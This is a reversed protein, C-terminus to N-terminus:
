QNQSALKKKSPKKKGPDEVKAWRGSPLKVYTGDKRKRTTGPPLAKGVSRFAVLKRLNTEIAKLVKTRNVSKFGANGVASKSIKIASEATLGDSRCMSYIDKYAKAGALSYNRCERSIEPAYKEVADEREAKRLLEKLCEISKDIRQIKNMRERWHFHLIKNKFDEMTMEDFGGMMEEPMANLYAQEADKQTKFGLFFKHEDFTGDEKKLQSMMFVPSDEHIPSALYVDVGEGDGDITDKIFGYNTGIMPNRYPCGAWQRTEGDKWELYINLGAFPVVGKVPDEKKVKHRSDWVRHCIAVAQDQKKGSRVETSICRSIFTDQKEGPKIEILM